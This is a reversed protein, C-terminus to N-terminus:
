NFDSNLLPERSDGIHQLVEPISVDLIASIRELGAGSVYKNMTSCCIPCLGIVRGTTATGSKYDVMDEAPRQPTRCHLCYLEFVKCRRKRVQMRDRLFEILHDGLILTPRLDGCVPLGNKTWTRITNKHVGLVRAVEEVTYNQHMKVLNPNLRKRM